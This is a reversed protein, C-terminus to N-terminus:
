GKYLGKDQIYQVVKADMHKSIQELKKFKIEERIITSSVNTQNINALCINNTYKSYKELIHNINDNNRMIVLLKYKSLIYDYKKWTEFENLNDTGCIFYIDEDPYKNKFYDLVEYTYQYNLNKSLDSVFINNNNIMLNLMAIRKDISVLGPKTYNDGTPVFIVKDVYKSKILQEAIQKHMNHPPNFCGGFIGINM